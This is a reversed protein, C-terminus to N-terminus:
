YKIAKKIAQKCHEFFQLLLNAILYALITHYFTCHLILIGTYDFFGLVSLEDSMFERINRYWVVQGQSPNLM